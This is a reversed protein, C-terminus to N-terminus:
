TLPDGDTDFAEFQLKIIMPEGDWLYTQDSQNLHIFPAINSNDGKVHRLMWEYIDYGSSQDYINDWVDRHHGKFFFKTLRATVTKQPCNNLADVLIYTGSRGQDNTGDPPVQGPPDDDGHFAWVPMDKLNCLDDPDANGSIPVIAAP